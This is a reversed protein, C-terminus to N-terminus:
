FESFYDMDPPPTSLGPLTAINSNMSVMGNQNTSKPILIVLLLVLVLLVVLVVLLLLVVVPVRKSKVLPSMCFCVTAFAYCIFWWRYALFIGFLCAFDFLVFAWFCFLMSWWSVFVFALFFRCFFWISLCRIVNIVVQVCPFHLVVYLVLCTWCVFFSAGCGLRLSFAVLVYLVLWTLVFQLM